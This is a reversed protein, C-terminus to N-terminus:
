ILNRKTGLDAKGSSFHKNQAGFTVASSCGSFIRTPRSLERQHLSSLALKQGLPNVQGLDLSVRPAVRKSGSRGPWECINRLSLRWPTWQWTTSLIAIKLPSLPPPFHPVHWMEQSLSKWSEWSQAFYDSSQTQFTVYKLSIRLSCFLFDNRWSSQSDKPTLSVAFIVKTPGTGAWSRAQCVHYSSLLYTQSM